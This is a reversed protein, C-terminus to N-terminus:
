GARPVELELGVCNLLKGARWRPSHWGVQVWAVALRGCDPCRELPMPQPRM